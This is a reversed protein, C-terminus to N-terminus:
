NLAVGFLIVNCNPQKCVLNWYWRYFGRYADVDPVRSLVNGDMDAFGASELETINWTDKRLFALIGRHIARSTKIPIGAYGLSMFGGDGNKASDTTVYLNGANTGQLLATYQQRTLSNMMIIDAEKGGGDPLTGTQYAHTGTASAAVGLGDVLPADLCQQMRTLSLATLGALPAAATSANFAHGRLAPEPSPQAPDRNIGFFSTDSVNGYMGVPELQMMSQAITTNPTQLQLGVAAGAASDVGNVFSLAVAVGYGPATVTLDLDKGGVGEGFRLTITGATADSSVVFIGQNAPNDELVIQEHTDTRILRVPVWTAINAIGDQAGAWATYDGTYDVTATGWTGILGANSPNGAGGAAFVAKESVYGRVANGCVSVTNASIKVDTVLKKMEADVYGIFAGKGGSKAASIAPGTIEFRGYQYQANIQLRNFGQSGADPLASPAGAGTTTGGEQRFGVGSNRSVHVPIIAVRGQWDVVAKEFMELVFIENNLEEIVPGIYFEKLINQFTALTAGM